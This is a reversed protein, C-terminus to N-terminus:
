NGIIEKKTFMQSLYEICSSEHFRTGDMGDGLDDSALQTSNVRQAPPSVVLFYDKLLKGFEDKGNVVKWVPSDHDIGRVPDLKLPFKTRGRGGGGTFKWSRRSKSNFGDMLM